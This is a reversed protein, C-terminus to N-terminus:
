TSVVELTELKHLLLKVDEIGATVTETDMWGEYFNVHLSNAVGFLRRVDPDATEDAIRRAASFLHRHSDHEWGRQGAICKVARVAAGWAKESAQLYDGRDLEEDAQQMFRRSVEKHEETVNM